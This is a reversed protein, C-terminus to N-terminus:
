KGEKKIEELYEELTIDTADDERDETELKDIIEEVDSDGNFFRDRYRKRWTDDLDKLAKETELKINAIETELYDAKEIGELADMVVELDALDEDSTGFRKQIIEIVKEKEM